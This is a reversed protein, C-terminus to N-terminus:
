VEPTNSSEDGQCSVANFKSSECSIVRDRYQFCKEQKGISFQQMIDDGDEGVSCHVCCLTLFYHPRSISVNIIQSWLKDRKVAAIAVSM